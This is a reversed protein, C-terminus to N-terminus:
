QGVWSFRKGGATHHYRRGACVSNVAGKQVGYKRAAAAASSFVEGTDLCIVQRQRGHRWATNEEADETYRFMAGDRAVSKKRCAFSIQGSSRGTARAADAASKYTIGTALEIIPGRRQKLNTLRKPPKAMGRPMKQRQAARRTLEEKADLSPREYAFELGKVLAHHGRASTAVESQLAGCECAADRTSGWRRGDTLCIVPRMRRRSAAERGVELRALVHQRKVPDFPLGGGGGPRQNYEPRWLAVLREELAFADIITECEKLIRFCFNEKGYKRIAKTLWSEHPSGAIHQYQRMKGPQATVGVYRKGNVLNIVDYVRAPRNLYDDNRM